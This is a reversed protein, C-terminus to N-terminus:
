RVRLVLNKSARTCAVYLCKLAEERNPNQLINVTDVLTTEYTSGQSKHTTLAYCLRIDHFFSKTFQHYASWSGERDKAKKALTNAMQQHAKLSDPHIVYGPVVGYSETEIQLKYCTFDKYIPNQVISLETILGEEDTPMLISDPDRVDCIPKAATVREGVEFEEKHEPYVEARVLENYGKVMANTWALCKIAEPREAYRDSLFAKILQKRFVRSDVCFVGGNEDRDTVLKPQTGQEICDRLHMALSLIQNDHREVKRLISKEPFSFIRSPEEKVPPLQLPDGMFIFKTGTEATAEAIHGFLDEGIMSGEDVVVVKYAAVEAERVPEVRQIRSDSKLVLGLLSHITQCPALIGDEEGNKEKLVRVAKNTPATLVVSGPDLENVLTQISLTKGTGASGELTYFSKESHCFDHMDQVAKLQDNNLQITM